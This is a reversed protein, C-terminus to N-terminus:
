GRTERAQLVHNAKAIQGAQWPWRLKRLIHWGAPRHRGAGADASQRGAATRRGLAPRRGARAGLLRLPM